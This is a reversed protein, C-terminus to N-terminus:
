RAAQPVKAWRIKSMTRRGRWIIVASDVFPSRSSRGNRLFRIRGTLFTVDAHQRVVWNYWWLSAVAPPFLGVVLAGKAAEEACKRAWAGLARGYPPNVFVAGFGQWDQRLGNDRRTFYIPAKANRKTAAPDLGFAGFQVALWKVLEPPTEWVDKSRKSRPTTM